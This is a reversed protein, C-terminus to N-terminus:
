CAGKVDVKTDYFTSGAARDALRQSTLANVTRDGPADKIWYISDAVVVGAPVKDTVKLIFPVEGRINFAVVQQRDTLQKAAADAPNMQLYMAEKQMLLDDRENFSSNLSYLNPATMLWFPASEGAPPFYRPLPEKEKENLIEIRGSPTRYDLKYGEPLPLEVTLGNKLRDMDVGAMWPKPDALLSDIMEDASQRFFADEFGMERALLQFVEWNSKSEGVAPIAPYTRQLCYHGYSRYIDSTELSSAAPLVIDAYLCTDTMFREHVVTFLDQRMLGAIVKNQDPAVAAPNSTYVYFSRVPPNAAETLADGIQNMNIIRTEEAMFDERTVQEMAFASGTSISSLLGGGSKQWAGALAPLCTICRVTMAGNAYRSLGSGLSIFPARASAYTKALEVIVAPDLGTVDSVAEPAYAPLTDKFQEFGHVHRAIFDKDVWGERVMVQMMSLALAGDSGPKVLIVRDAAVATPTEYTDILWVKAGQQKAKRVIQFFHISTALINTGWLIIFDSKPAEDPHLALTSGMVAKWGYDKAPSCITRELRSAGLRHFFPHGAHRQVLGMTGAYSYPLIAEAGYEAIITRWQGGIRRIAEEWSIPRFQGQGKAGARLLPQTLRGPSHVTKEYHNMKPCLSGRTYPHDPDGTVKVASGAEVEVLLGCADPCDYPCVSRKVTVM